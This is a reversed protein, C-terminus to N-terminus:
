LPRIHVSPFRTYPFTDSTRIREEGGVLLVVGALARSTSKQKSRPITYRVLNGVSHEPSVITLSDEGGFNFLVSIETSKENTLKNLVLTRM